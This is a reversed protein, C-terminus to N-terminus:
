ITDISWVSNVWHAQSIEIFKQYSIKLSTILPKSVKQSIARLHIGSVKSVILWCRNLYHNPATLHCAMVQALTSGPRQWWIADSSWLPNFLWKFLDFTFISYIIILHLCPEFLQTETISHPEMLDCPGQSLQSFNQLPLKWHLKPSQHSLYRKHFQGWM